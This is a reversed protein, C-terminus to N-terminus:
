RGMGQQQLQQQVLAPRSHKRPAAMSTLLEINKELSPRQREYDKAVIDELRRKGSGPLATNFHSLSRENRIFADKAWPEFHQKDIMGKRPAGQVELLEIRAGKGKLPSRFAAYGSDTEAAYIIANDIQTAYLPKGTKNDNVPVWPSYGAAASAGPLLSEGDGRESRGRASTIETQATLEGHMYTSAGADILQGREARDEGLSRAIRGSIQQMERKSTTRKALYVMQSDPVDFGESIMDVSALAAARGDSYKAIAEANDKPSRKSHLYEIDHGRDAAASRFATLDKINDFFALTKKGACFREFQAAHQDAIDASEAKRIDRSVGAEFKASSGKRHEEVIDKMTKPGELVINAHKTEPYRVLKVAEAEAPTIIHKEAEALRPHLGKMEEPPTASAALIKMNPNLEILKGIVKDYDENGASANHAEDVICFDRKELRDLHLRATQVTSVTIDGSQDLEGDIGSTIKAPSGPNWKGYAAAIAKVLHQRHALFLGRAGNQRLNEATRTTMRTKGSGTPSELFADQGNEISSTMGDIMRDQLKTAESPM